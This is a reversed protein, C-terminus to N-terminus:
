KLTVKAGATELEKKMKEAEEKTVGEKVVKPAGDVLDKADKLGLSTVARVAKIVGIKNGGTETLEVTFTTQEEKQESSPAAQPAAAVAVPASASVGFRKELVKVLRSAELLSLKEIKSVIDKFEAPIAGDEDKIETTHKDSM